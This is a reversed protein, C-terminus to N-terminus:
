EQEREEKHSDSGVDGAGKAVKQRHQGNESLLRLIVKEYTDGIGMSM